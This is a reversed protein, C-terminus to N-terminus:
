RPERGHNSLLESGGLAIDRDGTSLWCMQIVVGLVVPFLLPEFLSAGFGVIAIAIGGLAPAVAAFRVEVPLPAPTRWGHVKPPWLQLKPGYGTAALVVYHSLEHGLLGVAYGVLLGVVAVAIEVIM